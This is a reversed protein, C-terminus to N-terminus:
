LGTTPISTLTLTILYVTLGNNAKVIVKLNFNRPNTDYTCSTGSCTGLVVAKRITSQSGNTTPTESAPTITGKIVQSVSPDAAYALTYSISTVTSFSSSQFDLNLSKKDASFSPTVSVSGSGTVTWSGIMTNSAVPSVPRASPSSVVPPLPTNAPVASPTAPQRLPIVQIPQPAPVPASASSLISRSVVIVSGAVAILIIVAGGILLYRKVNYPITIIPITVRLNLWKQWAM